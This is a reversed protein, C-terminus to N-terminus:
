SRRRCRRLRASRSILVLGGAFEGEVGLEAGLAITTELAARARWFFVRVVSSISGIHAAAALRLCALGALHAGGFRM